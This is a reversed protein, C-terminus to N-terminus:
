KAKAESTPCSRAACGVVVDTALDVVPNRMASAGSEVEDDVLVVVVSFTSSLVVLLSVVAVEVTSFVVLVSSAVDVVSSTSCVAVEVDVEDVTTTVSLEVVDSSSALDVVVESSLTVVVVGSTAVLVVLESLSCSVLFEVSCCVLADSSFARETDVLSAVVVNLDTSLAVFTEVEVDFSSAVGEAIPPALIASALRASDLVSTGEDLVVVDGVVVTSGVASGVAVSDVVASGVVVSDVVAVDVDVSSDDDWDAEEVDV